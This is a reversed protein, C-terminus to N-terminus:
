WEVVYIRFTLPELPLPELPLPKLSAVDPQSSQQNSQYIIELEEVKIEWIKEVKKKGDSIILKVKKEGPSLFTRELTNSGEVIGQRFGLDWTYQLTSDDEDKVAAHFVIPQNVKATIKETPLYDIIQPEQNINKVIVEVPVKAESSSDSAGFSLWLTKENRNLKKNLYDSRSFLGSWLSKENEEVIKYDPNWVFIGDRFEAGPPLDEIFLELNDNDPDSASLRLTFEEGENVIVKEHNVELVPARNEQWVFINAAKIDQEQGDSASVWVTHEGQDDYDTNWHGNRKGLPESFSYRIIDGDPDYANPKIILEENEKITFNALDDLVPAQNINYLRLNAEATSCRDKGCSTIILPYDNHNLFFRELRLSNLVNSFFGGKRRITDYSPNWTIIQDNQDFSAGAPLGEVKIKIEEGDPDFSEIKSRFMEGEYANLQAALRLSPERDVDIVEIKLVESIVFEGDTATIVTEYTGADEYGTLWIGKYNLPSEFSYTLKDGDLDTEPLDLKLRQDENVQVPLLVLNPKRNTNEVKVIWEKTVTQEGDSIQLSLSHEGSSEYDFHYQGKAEESIILDDIQWLHSVPEQDNDVAEVSFSLDEGEASSVIKNDPIASVITPPQNTNVVEIEIREEVTFEGDSIELNVLHLGADHYDPTWLGSNDIPPSFKYQLADDNPDRIFEKLDLTQTEKIQIKKEDLYPPQNKQKVILNVNKVTQEQGDSATITLNYSGADGYNTQWEGKDDLPPSYYYFIKDNDPDTAEPTIKVLDTEEVQFTKIAALALPIFLLFFFVLVLRSKAQDM